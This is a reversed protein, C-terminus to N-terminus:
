VDRTGEEGALAGEEVVDQEAVLFVVIRRHCRNFFILLLLVRQRDQPREFPNFVGLILGNDPFNVVDIDVDLLDRHARKGLTEVLSEHWLLYLGGRDVNLSLRDLLGLKRQHLRLRDADLVIQFWCGLLDLLGRAEVLGLLVGSEVRIVGVHVEAVRLVLVGKNGFNYVIRLDVLVREQVLQHGSDVRGVGILKVLVLTAVHLAGVDVRAGDTVVRRSPYLVSHVAPRTVLWLGLLGTEHHVSSLRTM